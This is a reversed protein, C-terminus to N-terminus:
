LFVALLMFDNNKKKRSHVPSSRMMINLCVLLTQSSEFVYPSAFSISLILPSCGVVQVFLMQLWISSLGKPGRIDEFMTEDRTCWLCPMMGLTRCSSMSILHPERLSVDKGISGYGGLWWFLQPISVNAINRTLKFDNNM